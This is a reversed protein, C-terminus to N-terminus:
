QVVNMEDILNKAGDLKDMVWLIYRSDVHIARNVKSDFEWDSNVSEITGDFLLGVLEGKSNLTASGSNGGTIDLDTLFNVPVSGISKLKYIGYDNAKILDLQAQPANFPEKATNKEVIGELTTFPTYRLGDKPIGGMVNGYTIRLNSNADPYTTLGQSKQWAIIAQMYKPELEAYRGKRSKKNKEQALDEDYLAIALKIFPDDSKELEATDANILSLRTDLNGLDTGQYYKDLNKSVDDFNIDGGLGLAEDFAVVRQSKPQALYGKLFVLWEAKDVKSDYRRQISEMKQKFFSMDREQYGGDRQADPKQKEKSLKYLSRAAGLLQPRTVNKYWYEKRQVEATERSLEDLELIAEAFDSNGDVWQNLKEERTARRKVLNIRKAGVLQGGLNKKYNNLGALRSEYKIRSDSGEESTQEIANIWDDLLSIWTPYSWNFVNEVEVLRSYRSTSGPYGAVMVFDGEDLGSSSVSLVQEPKYPVNEESYDTSEGEPSVYARYFAFDGTHRPWLWNDIDGGYKGISDAPAYVLRVDKIELRKNLKYQLGGFFPSVQCRHGVDKECEAILAKRNKEIVKHRQEGSQSSSAGDLVKDTVDSVQKTVYIRSGPAAPLENSLDSALFGDDLYNNEESSNYQVSGRACHHNTIVLGKESVFSASCNGLSIVAGMPFGTLDKLQEPKLTLGAKSLDDSIEPLQDPTYMGEKAMLSAHHSFSFFLGVSALFLKITKLYM